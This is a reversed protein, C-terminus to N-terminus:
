SRGEDRREERADRIIDNIQDLSLKDLGKMRAEARIDALARGFRSRRLRQLDAELDAPSTETLIAFPKGNRTVVLQHAKVLKKWIKGPQTRFERISIFDMTLIPLIYSM